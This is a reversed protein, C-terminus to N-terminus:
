AVMGVLLRMTGAQCDSLSRVLWDAYWGGSQRHQDVPMTLVDTEQM